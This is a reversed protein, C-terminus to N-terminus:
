QNSELYLSKEQVEHRRFTDRILTRSFMHGILSCGLSVGRIGCGICCNSNVNPSCCAPIFHPFSTPLWQRERYNAWCSNLFDVSQESWGLGVNQGDTVVFVVSRLHFMSSNSNKSTVDFNVKSGRLWRWFMAMALLLRIQRSVHFTNLFKFTDYAYHKGWKQKGLSQPAKQHKLFFFSLFVVFFFFHVQKTMCNVAHSQNQSWACGLYRRM